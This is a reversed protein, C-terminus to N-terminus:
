EKIAEYLWARAFAWDRKATPTSIGMVESVQEITLGTFYRLKVVQARLGELEEQLLRLREQSAPDKEKKLATQEVERQMIADVATLAGGAALYAATLSGPSM